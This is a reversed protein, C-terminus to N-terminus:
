FTKVPNKKKLILKFGPNPMLEEVSPLKDASTKVEKTKLDVRFMEM